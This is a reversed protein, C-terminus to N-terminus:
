EEFGRGPRGLVMTEIGVAMHKIAKAVEGVLVDDKVMTLIAYGGLGTAEALEKNTWPKTPQETYGARHLFEATDTTGARDSAAQEPSIWGPERGGGTSYSLVGPPVPRAFDLYGPRTAKFNKTSYQPQDKQSEQYAVTALEAHYRNHSNQRIRNVPLLKYHREGSEDVLYITIVWTRTNADPRVDAIRHEKWEDEKGDLSPYFVEITSKVDHMVGHLNFSPTGRDGVLPGMPPPLDQVLLGEPIQKYNSIQDALLGAGELGGGPMHRGGYNLRALQDLTRQAPSTYPQQASAAANEQNVRVVHNRRAETLRIVDVVTLDRFARTGSGQAAITVSIKPITTDKFSGIESIQYENWTTTGPELVEILEGCHHPQGFLEFHPVQVMGSIHGTIVPACAGVAVGAEVLELSSYPNFSTPETAGASQEILRSLRFARALTTLRLYHQPQVLFPAGGADNLSIAYASDADKWVVANVLSATWDKRDISFEVFDGAGIQVGMLDFSTQPEQRLEESSQAKPVVGGVLVGNELATMIPQHEKEVAPALSQTFMGAASEFAAAGRRDGEVQTFRSAVLNDRMLKCARIRWSSDLLVEPNTPMLPNGVRLQLQGKSYGIGKVVTEAWKLTIPTTPIIEVTDGIGEVIGQIVISCVVAHPDRAKHDLTDKLLQDFSVGAELSKALESEASEPASYEPSAPETPQVLPRRKYLVVVKDNLQLRFDQSEDAQHLVRAHVDVPRLDIVPVGLGDHAIKVIVCHLVIAVPTAETDSTSHVVLGIHDRVRHEAGDVIWQDFTLDPNKVVTDYVLSVRTTKESM